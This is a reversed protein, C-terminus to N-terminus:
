KKIRPTIKPKVAKPKEEIRDKNVELLYTRRIQNILYLKQATFSKPHMQDFEVKFKNFQDPEAKKYRDPDIRKSILYETFEM